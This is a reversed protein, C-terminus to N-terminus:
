WEAQAYFMTDDLNLGGAVFYFGFLSTDSYWTNFTRFHQFMNYKTGIVAMNNSQNQLNMIIVNLSQETIWLVLSLNTFCVFM